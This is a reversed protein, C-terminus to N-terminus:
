CFAKGVAVMEEAWRDMTDAWLEAAHMANGSYNDAAREGVRALEHVVRTEKMEGIVNKVHLDAKRQFYAELDSLIVEVVESETKAKESAIPAFTTVFPIGSDERVAASGPEPNGAPTPKPEVPLEDDSTATSLNQLARGPDARAVGFGDLAKEGLDGALQTQKRSASKFRKVFTSSELSALIENLQDAVKAFEALLDQQEEIGQDLSSAAPGAATAPQRFKKPPMALTNGPLKLSAAGAGGPPQPDGPKPQFMTSEKLAISPDPQKPKAGPAKGNQPGGGAPSSPGSALVPASLSDAPVGMKGQGNAAQNQASKSDGGSTSEQGQGSATASGPNPPQNQAGNSALETGPKADAARQLLDAVSPMRNRAIDELMRLM